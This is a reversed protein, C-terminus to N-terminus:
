ILWTKKELMFRHVNYGKRPGKRPRGRRTGREKRSGEASCRVKAGPGFCFHTVLTYIHPHPMSELGGFRGTAKRPAEAVRGRPAKRASGSESVTAPM